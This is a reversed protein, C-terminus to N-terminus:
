RGLFRAVQLKTFPKGSTLSAFETAANRADQSVEPLEIEGRDYADIRRGCM